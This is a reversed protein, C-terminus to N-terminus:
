ARACGARVRRRARGSARQAAEGGEGEQERQRALQEAPGGPQPAREVGDGVQGTAPLRGEVPEPRQAPLGEVDVQQHDDRREASGRDALDHVARQEDDDEGGRARHLGQGGGAGLVADTAEETQCGRGGGAQVGHAARLLRDLGAPEGDPVHDQHARPLADSGVAADEVAHAVDVLRGDGAFGEGNRLGHAVLDEGAGQVPGPGQADTDLAVGGVRDDRSDDGEDLLRGTRLGRRLEEDLPDFVAVCEAHHGRGDEDEADREGEAGVPARRRAMVKM